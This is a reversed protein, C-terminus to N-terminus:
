KSVVDTEMEHERLSALNVSAKRKLMYIGCTSFCLMINFCIVLFCICCKLLACLRERFWLSVDHIFVNQLLKQFAIKTLLISM